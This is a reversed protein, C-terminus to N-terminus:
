GELFTRVISKSYGRSFLVLETGIIACIHKFRVSQALYARVLCIPVCRHMTHTHRILEYESRVHPWPYRLAISATNTSFNKHWRLAVFRANFAYRLKQINGWIREFYYPLLCSTKLLSFIARVCGGVTVVHRYAIIRECLLLMWSRQISTLTM